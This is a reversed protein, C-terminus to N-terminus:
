RVAQVEALPTAPVSLPPTPPKALAFLVLGIVCLIDFVIFAPIYSGLSDFAWAAALPGGATAIVQAINGWGTITGAIRRGFYDPWVQARLPMSGGVVFGLLLTVPYLTTPTLAFILLAIGAAYTAAFLVLCRQIRWREALVAWMPKAILAGVGYVSVSAVAASVPFGQDSFYAVMHIYITAAPIQTAVIGGLMLWFARTRVAQRPTWGADAATDHDAVANPDEPPLNDPRLGMDEPRRRVFFWASPIIMVWTLLGLFLFGGRWGFGTIISQIIPPLTIGSMTAGAVAIAYARGRKRVFWNAIAASPAVVNLTPRALAIGLGLILYFMWISTVLATAMLLAGYLAGGAVMLLRAGYRDVLPGVLVSGGVALIGGVTLVGVSMSRTWGMDESMPKLIVSFAWGTVGLEIFFGCFAAAVVLWGPYIHRLRQALSPSTM